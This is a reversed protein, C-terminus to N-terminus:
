YGSTSSRVQIQKKGTDRKGTDRVTSWGDGSWHVVAPALVEQRLKKSVPMAECQQQLALSCLSHWGAEKFYCDVPQPPM